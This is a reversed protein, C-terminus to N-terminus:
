FIKLCPMGYDRFADQKGWVSLAAILPVLQDRTMGHNENGDGPTARGFADKGPARVFVGNQDPELKRAVDDFSLTRAPSDVWPQHIENAPDLGGVLVLRGNLRIGLITKIM